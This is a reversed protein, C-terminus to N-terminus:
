RGGVGEKTLLPRLAAARFPHRLAAARFPLKALRTLARLIRWAHAFPVWAPHRYPYVSRLHARGPLLLALLYALKFRLGPTTLLNVLLHAAPSAADRPAHYLALRDRWNPKHTALAATVETPCIPGFLHQTTQIARRIPLSLRWARTQQIVRTWDINHGQRDTLRKIDYLWLLREGDHYAAHAALHIFMTEPSPIWARAKGISVPQANQWLANDPIIQSLRIPRFPRAHLDIRVANPNPTILEREYHFRPFFDDRLLDFGPRCGSRILVEIARTAHKLHVLLDVDTMPRLNPRDYITLNLAAGKLLMVPIDANNLASVVQELAADRDISRAAILMADRTFAALVDDPLPLKHNLAHERLLAAVGADRATRVFDDWNLTNSTNDLDSSSRATLRRALQPIAQQMLLIDTHQNVRM